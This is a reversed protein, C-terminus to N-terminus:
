RKEHDTGKSKNTNKKSELLVVGNVAKEGYKRVAEPGKVVSVSEIEAADIKELANDTLLTGDLYYIPADLSTGHIMVERQRPLSGLKDINRAQLDAPRVLDFDGLPLNDPLKPTQNYGSRKDNELGDLEFQIPLTYEVAVPQGNQQGSRWRPMQSIVRVAEEDCGGGIGKLIRPSRIEGNASVVFRVFVRGTIGAKRAEAPYRISQALYKYLEALGGPFEPQQEIVTFVEKADAKPPEPTKQYATTDKVKDNKLPVYSVVTMGKLENPAKELTVMIVTRGQIAVSQSQFGIFSVAL